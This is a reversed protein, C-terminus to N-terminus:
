SLVGLQRLLLAGDLYVWEGALKGDEDFQFIACIPVEVRRGTAPIDQWTNTHEGSLTVELIIADDSVYRQKVKVQVNAFNGQGGFGFDEYLARISEQGTFTDGNLVFTPREGFTKMLGDIDHANEARIHEEVLQLRAEIQDQNLAIPM